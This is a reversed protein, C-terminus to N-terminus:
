KLSIGIIKMQIYCIKSIGNSIIKSEEQVVGKWITAKIQVVWSLIECAAVVHVGREQKLNILFNSVTPIEGVTKETLFFFM